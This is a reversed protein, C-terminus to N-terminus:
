IGLQETNLFMFQKALISLGTADAPRVVEDSGWAGKRTMKKYNKELFSQKDITKFVESLIKTTASIAARRGLFISILSL